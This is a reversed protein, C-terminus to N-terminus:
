KYESLQNNLLSTAESLITSAMSKITPVNAASNTNGMDIVLGTVTALDDRIKTAANYIDPEDAFAEFDVNVFCTQMREIFSDAFERSGSGSVNGAYKSVFDMLYLVEEDLATALASLAEQKKALQEQAIREQEAAYLEDYTARATLLVNLKEVDEKDKSPLKEYASEAALIASESELTVEGIASILQDVAEAAESKGCATLTFLLAFALVLVIVKKM